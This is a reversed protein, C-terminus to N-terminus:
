YGYFIYNFGSGTIYLPFSLTPNNKSAKSNLRYFKSTVMTVMDRRPGRSGKGKVEVM